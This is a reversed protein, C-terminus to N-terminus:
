KNLREYIVFHDDELPIDISSTKTKKMKEKKKPKVIVEEEDEEEEDEEFRREKRLERREEMNDVANTILKAPHIGFMFILVIIAIGIALIIAGTEGLLNVAPIAAIMGIAGGGINKQGLDYAQQLISGFEKTMDITGKSIQYICMIVAICILFIGYQILKPSLMEKKECALNIAIAFTGIPIIYKMWGMLGGLLPSLTKGIYGANTYILVALLISVIIMSVVALDIDIKNQKKRTKSRTTRTRGKRGKAM